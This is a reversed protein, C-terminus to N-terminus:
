KKRERKTLKRKRKNIDEPISAMKLAVDKELNNQIEKTRLIIKQKEKELEMNLQTKQLRCSSYIEKLSTYLPILINANKDEFINKLRIKSFELVKDTINLNGILRTWEQLSIKVYKNLYEKFDSTTYEKENFEILSVEISEKIIKFYKYLILRIVELKESPINYTITFVEFFKDYYIKLISDIIRSQKKLLFYKESAGKLVGFNEYAQLIEKSYINIIENNHKIEKSKDNKKDVNTLDAEIENGAIKGKFKGGRFFVGLVVALIAVGVFSAGIIYVEM